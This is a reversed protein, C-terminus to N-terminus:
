IYRLMIRLVCYSLHIFNISTASSALSEQILANVLLMCLATRHYWASHMNYNNEVTLKTIGRQEGSAKSNCASIRLCVQSM